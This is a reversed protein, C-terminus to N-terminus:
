NQPIEISIFSTAPASWLNNDFVVVEVERETTDPTGATNLYVVNRLCQQYTAADAVGSISLTFTATNYQDSLPCAGEVGLFENNSLDQPNEIRVIAEIVLDADDFVTLMSADGVAVPSGGATFTTSFDVGAASGNLDVEPAQNVTFNVTSTATASLQRGDTVFVTVSRQTGTPALGVHDYRISRIVQQYNALTDSGYLNMVGTAQNYDVGITTGATNILLLEESGDAIDSIAITAGLLQTGDDSVSASGAAINVPGVDQQWNVINNIGAGVGNLDVAPAANTAQVRMTSVALNSSTLGDTVTVHIVRDGATPSTASNEYRVVRLVGIYNALTSPGTITFQGSTTNWGCTTRTDPPCTGIPISIEEDAGDPRNTLHITMGQLESDNSDSITARLSDAIAQPGGPVFLPSFDVGPADGNLDINPPDNDTTLANLATVNNALIPDPIGMEPYVASFIQLSGVSGANVTRTVNVTLTGGVPISAQSMLVRGFGTPDIGCNAGASANCTWTGASMTAPFNTQNSPYFENLSVNNADRPGNNTAVIRYDFSQGLIASDETQLVVELEVDRIEFDDAFLIEGGGSLSRPIGGGPFAFCQLAGNTTLEFLGTDPDFAVSQIGVYDGFEGNPDTIRVTMQQPASGVQACLLPDNVSISFINDQPLLDTDHTVTSGVPLSAQGDVALTLDTNLSPACSFTQAAMDITLAPGGVADPDYNIPNQSTNDINYTRGDLVLYVQNPPPVDEPGCELNGINSDLVLRLNAQDYVVDSIVYGEFVVNKTNFGAPNVNLTLSANAAASALLLSTAVALNKAHVM